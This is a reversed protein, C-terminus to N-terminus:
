NVLVECIEREHNLAERIRDIGPRSTRPGGLIRCNKGIFEKREYGTMRQFDDSTFVVPNDHRTPDSLVFVEALGPVIEAIKSNYNGIVRDALARESLRAYKDAIFARFYKDVFINLTSEIKDQIVWPMTFNGIKSTVPADRVSNLGSVIAEAYRISRLAKTLISFRAFHPMANPQCAGLFTQFEVNLDRDELVQKVHEISFLSEDMTEICIQGANTPHPIFDEPM